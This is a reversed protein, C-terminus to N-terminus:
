TALHNSKQLQASLQPCNVFGQLSYIHVSSELTFHAAQYPKHKGRKLHDPMSIYDRLATNNTSPIWVNNIFIPCDNYLINYKPLYVWKAKM